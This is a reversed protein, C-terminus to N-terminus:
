DKGHPFYSPLNSQSAIWHLLINKSDLFRNIKSINYCEEQNQKQSFHPLLSKQYLVIHDEWM